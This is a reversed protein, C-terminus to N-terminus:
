PAAAAALSVRILEKDNRWYLSQHAYAPHCWLTPRQADTNTPDLLHARSLESYGKRSLDCIVVDGKENAIFFHRAAKGAESEWPTIFAATWQVPDADGLTAAKDSWVVHGDAPDICLLQGGNNVGFVHGDHFIMQSHLAHLTSVTRGKNAAHWLLKPENGNSVRIATCGEYQTSLIFTDNPILLPTVIAVGQKAPGYPMSWNVKGSQPDLSVLARPYWQILQRQGNLTHIMPPSYGPGEEKAELASWIPEGTGKNLATLVPHGSSLLILRDGDILPAGSYGWIAPNGELRRNWVTKGSEIDICYVNGQAGLTYVRGGDIIPTARPGSAYSITYPCDYEVKWLLQGGADDFCLVREIGPLTGTKFPDGPTVVGAGLVHDTVIVRDRAVVPQSYGAAVSARWLIKPGEKPFASLIGRERYIGDRQPGFWQPYDDALASATLCAIVILLCSAIRM